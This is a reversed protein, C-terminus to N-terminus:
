YATLAELKRRRAFFLHISIAAIYCAIVLAIMASVGSNSVLMLLLPTGCLNGFTGWLTMAAARM